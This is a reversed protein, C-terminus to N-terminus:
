HAIVLSSDAMNYSSDSVTCVRRTSFFGNSDRKDMSLNDRLSPPLHHDAFSVLVKSCLMKLSLWVIFVKFVGYLVRHCRVKLTYVLYACVCLSRSGYGKHMRRPNVFM